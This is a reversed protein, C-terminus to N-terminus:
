LISYIPVEWTAMSTFFGGALAPPTLSVPKIGPNPFDKPPLFPLGSWSEQRFFGLPLPVQLALTKLTAFLKVHCFSNLVYEGM